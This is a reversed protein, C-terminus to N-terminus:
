MPALFTRANWMMHILIPVLLNKTKVYMVAWLWGLLFLHAFARANMHNFAFILSSLDVANPLSMFLCLAQLLFGRYLLEEWIPRNCNALLTLPQYTHMNLVRAQPINADQSFRAEFSPHINCVDLRQM